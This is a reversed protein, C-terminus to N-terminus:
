ATYGRERSEFISQIREGIWELCPVAISNGLMKYIPGDALHYERKSLKGSKLLRRYRVHTFYDDPFGQLRCCEVPTLRRVAMSGGVYSRSSGGSAARISAVDSVELQSGGDRGRLNLAVAAQGGANAHSGEHGMSRLTPSLEGADAGHDKCSFAILDTNVPDMRGREGTGGSTLTMAVNPVSIAVLNEHSDQERARLTGIGEQWFGSGTAHAAVAVLPTGRGMGDESADFGDARLSHTPGDFSGGVSILTETEYDQRGM